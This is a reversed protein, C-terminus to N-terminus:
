TASIFNGQSLQDTAPRTLNVVKELPPLSGAHRDQRSVFARHLLCISLLFLFTQNEKTSIEGAPRTLVKTALRQGFRADLFPIRGLEDASLVLDLYDPRVAAFAAADPARYPFKRKDVIAAPLRARFAERLLRKERFGDDFKLNISSALAVVEPDLFPCRNEVGHALSMREGQTSLLYGPLSRLLNPGSHPIIGSTSILGSNGSSCAAGIDDREVLVVDAGGERLM